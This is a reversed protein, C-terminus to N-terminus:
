ALAHPCIRGCNKELPTIVHPLQEEYLAYHDVIKRPIAGLEVLYLWQSKVVFDAIPSVKDLFPQLHTEIDEGDLELHLNKPDPNVITILVDYELSLPIGFEKDTKNPITVDFMKDLPLTARYVRTTYWWMPLGIIFLVITYSFINYIRFIYEADDSVNTCKASFNRTDRKGTEQSKKDGDSKETTM